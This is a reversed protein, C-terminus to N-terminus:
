IADYIWGGGDSITETSYLTETLEETDLKFLMAELFDEAERNDLDILAVWVPWPVCREESLQCVLQSACCREHDISPILRLAPLYMPVPLPLTYLFALYPALGVEREVIPLYRLTWEKFSRTSDLIQRGRIYIFCLWRLGLARRSACQLFCIRDSM